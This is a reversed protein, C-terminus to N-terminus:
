APERIAEYLWRASAAYSAEWETSFDTRGSRDSSGWYGPEAVVEGLGLQALTPRVKSTYPLVTTQTRLMTAILAPHMRTTVLQSASALTAVLGRVSTPLVVEMGLEVVMFSADDIDMALGLVDPGEGAVLELCRERWEDIPFEAEVADSRAPVDILNVLPRGAVADIEAAIGEVHPFLLSIADAVVTAEVNGLQAAEAM